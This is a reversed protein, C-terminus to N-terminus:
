SKLPATNLLTMTSSYADQLIAKAAPNSTSSYASRISQGYATLSTSLYNEYTNDLNNSQMAATMQSDTSSSKYAALKKSDVKVHRDQLNKNLQTQESALVTNVTAALNIATPDKLNESQAQTVRDIEQARAMVDIIGSTKGGGKSLALGIIVILIFLVVGAGMLVVLRNGPMLPRSQKPQDKLIFDYAPDPSKPQM